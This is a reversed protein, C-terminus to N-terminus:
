ADEAHGARAREAHRRVKARNGCVEMSCWRRRGSSDVFLWGCGTGPCQRVDGLEATALLDGAERAIELVPQALGVEPSVSWRRGPARGGHLEAHAAAARAERGVVGWAALDNPDACAGYLARRLSRARRLQREAARPDRAADERLRAAADDDVLGADRAWAVLHAYTALYEREEGGNWGALTNCFDLAPAHAVSRPLVLDDVVRQYRPLTTSVVFIIKVTLQLDRRRAPPM